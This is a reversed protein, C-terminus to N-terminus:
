SIASPTEKGTPRAPLEVLARLVQSFGVRGGEMLRDPMPYEDIVLVQGGVANVLRSLGETSFFNLHESQRLPMLPFERQRSRRWKASFIDLQRWLPQGECAVRGVCWAARAYKRRAPDPVGAPVEIYLYMSAAGQVDEIISNLFTLPEALHELLGCAMVLDPRARRADAMSALSVVGALPERGSVELVFRHPISPPIFQGRDGGIDVVTEVSAANLAPASQLARELIEQRSHVVERDDGFDRNLKATYTPEWSNRDHFYEESRYGDYLAGMESPSYRYSFAGSGCIGCLSFWSSRRSMNTRKRVWPSVIAKSIRTMRTSCAPCPMGTTPDALDAM